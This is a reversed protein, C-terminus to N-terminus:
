VWLPQAHNTKIGIRATSLTATAALAVWLVHDFEESQVLNLAEKEMKEIGFDIDETRFAKFCVMISEDWGPMSLKRAIGSTKDKVNLRIQKEIKVQEEYGFTLLLASAEPWNLRPPRKVFDLM